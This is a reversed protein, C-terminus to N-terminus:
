EERTDREEKRQLLTKRGKLGTIERSTEHIKKKSEKEEDRNMIKRGTMEEQTELKKDPKLESLKNNPKDM